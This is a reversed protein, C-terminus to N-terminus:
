HRRYPPQTDSVRYGDPPEVYLCGRAPTPIDNAELVVIPILVLWLVVGFFYWSRPFEEFDPLPKGFVIKRILLVIAKTSGYLLIGVLSLYGLFVLFKALGLFIGGLTSGKFDGWLTDGKYPNQEGM